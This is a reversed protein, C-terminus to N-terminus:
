LLALRVQRGFTEDSAWQLQSKSQLCKQLVEVIVRIGGFEVFKVMYVQFKESDGIRGTLM